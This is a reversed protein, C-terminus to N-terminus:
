RGLNSKYLRESDHIFYSCANVEIIIIIIELNGGTCIQLDYSELIRNIFVTSNVPYNCVLPHLPPPIAFFCSSACPIFFFFYVLVLSTAAYIM